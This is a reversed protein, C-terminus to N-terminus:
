QIEMFICFNFLLPGIGDIFKYKRVFYISTTKLSVALLVPQLDKWIDEVFSVQNEVSEDPHATNCRM